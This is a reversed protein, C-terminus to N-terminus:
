IWWYEVEVPKGDLQANTIKYSTDSVKEMRLWYGVTKNLNAIFVVTLASNVPAYAILLAPKRSTTIIGDGTRKGTQLIFMNSNKTRLKSNANYFAAAPVALYTYTDDQTVPGSDVTVAGKNAMAGAAEVSSANTFTKGTLVDGAGATGKKTAIVGANYGNKYNASDTNTRADADVMGKAYAGAGSVYGRGNHHGAPIPVNGNGTTEGTWAGNEPMTGDKEIGATGSFTKGILVDGAGATGKVAPVSVQGLGDYGTDPRITQEVNSLVASKNQLRASSRIKAINAAMTAFTDSVLTPVGKGTVADAILGKGDSASRFCEEVRHDLHDIQTQLDGKGVVDVDGVLLKLLTWIKLWVRMLGNKNLKEDEM